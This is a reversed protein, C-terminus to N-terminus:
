SGADSGRRVDTPVFTTVRAVGIRILDLKPQTAHSARLLM